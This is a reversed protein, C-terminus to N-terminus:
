KSNPTQFKTSTGVNTPLPLIEGGPEAPQYMGAGLKKLPDSTTRNKWGRYVANGGLVLALLVIVIAAVTWNLRSLQLMLSDVGSKKRAPAPLDDSFKKLSRLETDLQAILNTSDLKLLKAYTRVSGRLYVAASFADYDGEELARIQDTKLKTVEAVQAVDLKLAERGQRLQEAVTPM